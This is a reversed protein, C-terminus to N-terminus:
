KELVGTLLTYVDPMRPWLHFVGSVVAAVVLIVLYASAEKVRKERVPGKLDIFAFITLVLITGAFITVKM